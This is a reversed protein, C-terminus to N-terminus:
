ILKEIHKEILSKNYKIKNDLYGIIENYCKELNENIVVYDYDVWHVVDKDFQDMRMQIIEDKEITMFSFVNKLKEVANLDM